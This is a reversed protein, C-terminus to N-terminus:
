IYFHILLFVALPALFYILHVQKMKEREYGDPIAWNGRLAIREGAVASPGKVFKYPFSGSRGSVYGSILLFDEPEGPRRDSGDDYGASAEGNGRCADGGDSGWARGVHPAFNLDDGNLKKKTEEGDRARDVSVRFSGSIVPRRQIHRRLDKKM